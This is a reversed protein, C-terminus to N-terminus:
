QLSDVVNHLIVEVVSVVVVLGDFVNWASSLYEQQGFCLALLPSPPSHLPILLAMSTTASFPSDCLVPPLQTPVHVGPPPPFTQEQALSPLYAHIDLTPCACSHCNCRPGCMLLTVAQTM